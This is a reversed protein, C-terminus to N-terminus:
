KLKWHLPTGAPMLRVARAINWNQLRLGGIGRQTSMHAPISTGHLGYPLPDTSKAKALNIWLIGVPNDPGPALYEDHDLPPLPVATAVPISTEDGTDLLNNSVKPKTVEKVERRTAMRPHPIVDLVTWSGRGRLDPHASALPMVAILTDGQSIELWQLEVIAASIPKDPNAAPQLPGDFTREIEFPLVSPVKFETGAVIKGKILNHNLRRLFTEDCHFREAIFEWPTQYGLFPSTALEEYTLPAPAADKSSASKSKSRSSKKEQPGAKEAKPPVIFRFDEAKLTYTTYPNGVVEKAKAKLADASGVDNHNSQYLQSVKLLAAGSKGDIPGASFNQRDLFVQTLVNEQERIVEPSAEMEAKAAKKKKTKKDEPKPEDPKKEPEPPPPPPKMAQLEEANPIRLVQGIKIKDDAMGNFTKLQAVKLDFKKAILILADGKKVEYTAPRNSEVHVTTITLQGNPAGGAQTTTVKPTELEPLPIGWEKEDSPVVWWKWKIAAELGPEVKPPAPRAPAPAQEAPSWGPILCLAVLCLWSRSLMVHM